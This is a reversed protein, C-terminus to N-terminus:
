YDFFLLPYSIKVIDIVLDHSNKINIYFFEFIDKQSKGILCGYCFGLYHLLM